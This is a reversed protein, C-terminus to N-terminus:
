GSKRLNKPLVKQKCFPKDVSKKKQLANKIFSKKFTKHTSRSKFGPLPSDERGKKILSKELFNPQFAWTM